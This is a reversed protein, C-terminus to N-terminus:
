EHQWLSRIHHEILNKTGSIPAPTDIVDDMKTGLKALEDAKENGENGVHAKTWVFTLSKHKVRNLSEITELALRSKILASQFTRLAAQSDVFIKVDTLDQRQRLMEAAQKIAFLEAQYVTAHDSIRFKASTTGSKDTIYVGSGVKDDLKSGDTYVNTEVQGQCSAMDVFSNADLTFKLEPKLVCCHDTVRAVLLDANDATLDWFRRHSVSYTLNTYVGDWRM